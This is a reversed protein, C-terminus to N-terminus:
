LMRKQQLITKTQERQEQIQFPPSTSTICRPSYYASMSSEPSGGWSHADGYDSDEFDVAHHPSDASRQPQVLPPTPPAATGGPASTTSDAAADSGASGGAGNGGSSGAM